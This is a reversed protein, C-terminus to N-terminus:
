TCRGISCSGVAAMFTPKTFLQKLVPARWGKGSAPTDGVNFPLQSMGHRELRDLRDLGFDQRPEASACQHAGQTGAKGGKSAEWEGERRGGVSIEHLSISLTFSLLQVKM